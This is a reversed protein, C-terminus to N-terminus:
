LPAANWDCLEDSSHCNVSANSGLIAAQRM